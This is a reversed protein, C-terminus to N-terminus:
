TSVSHWLILLKTSFAFRAPTVRTNIPSSFMIQVIEGRCILALVLDGFVALHQECPPSVTDDRQGAVYEPKGASVGSGIRRSM